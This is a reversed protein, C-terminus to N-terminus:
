EEYELKTHLIALYNIMDEITDQISEDDVEADGSNRVLTALRSFKDSLRVMMGTKTESIGLHEVLEFNHLANKNKGTYDANKKKAIGVCKSFVKEMHAFLEKNTVEHKFNM